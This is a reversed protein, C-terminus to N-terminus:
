FTLYPKWYHQHHSQYLMRGTILLTAVPKTPNFLHDPLVKNLLKRIAADPRSMNIVPKPWTVTRTLPTSLIKWAKFSKSNSATLDLTVPTSLNDCFADFSESILLLLSTEKLLLSNVVLLRPKTELLASSPVLKSAKFM